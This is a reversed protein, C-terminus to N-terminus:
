KSLRRRNRHVRRKYVGLVKKAVQRESKGELAATAAAVQAEAYAAIKETVMRQAETQRGKASEAAIRMTRLAIVSQAEWATLAAQSTLSWWASWMQLPNSM